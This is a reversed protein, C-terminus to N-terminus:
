QLDIKVTSKTYKNNGVEGGRGGGGGTDELWVNYTMYMCMVTSGGNVPVKKM